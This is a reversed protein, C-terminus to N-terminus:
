NSSFKYVGVASAAFGPVLLAEDEPSTDFRLFVLYLSDFALALVSLLDVSFTAAADVGDVEFPAFFRNKSKLLSGGGGYQNFAYASPFTRGLTSIVCEVSSVLM